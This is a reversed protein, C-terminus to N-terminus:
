ETAARHQRRLLQQLLTTQGRGRDAKATDVATRRQSQGLPHPRPLARRWRRLMEAVADVTVITDTHQPVQNLTLFGARRQTLTIQGNIVSRRRYGLHM